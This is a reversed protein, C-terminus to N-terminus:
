ALGKNSFLTGSVTGGGNSWPDVPPPPADVDYDYQNINKIANAIIRRDLEILCINKKLEYITRKLEHALITSTFNKTKRAFRKFMKEYLKAHTEMSAQQQIKANLDQMLTAAALKVPNQMWLRDTNSQPNTVLENCVQALRQIALTKASMEIQSDDVWEMGTSDYFNRRKPDILTEYATKIRQFVKKSAPDKNRDPHYMMSLRQYAQRIATFTANGQLGLVQYLDGAPNHPTADITAVATSTM